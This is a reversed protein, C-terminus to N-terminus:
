TIQYSGAALAVFSVNEPGDNGNPSDFEGLSKGSPSSVKVIVDIGRQDVALQVYTNEQLDVTFTHVQASGLTREIPTGPQLITITQTNATVASILLFALILTPIKGMFM